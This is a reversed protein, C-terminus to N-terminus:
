KLFRQLALPVDKDNDDAASSDINSKEDDKKSQRYKAANKDLINARKRALKKGTKNRGRMKNKTKNKAKKNNDAEEALRRREIRAAEPDQDLSGIINPDLSIMEPNLKDLLSRVEAENRQKTDRFPNVEHSDFNAEGAGPIVISSIGNSHGIVGVDEYPRFRFRGISSGTVKHKMYPSKAKMALSDKWITTTYGHGVGLLGNQSIDLTTAPRDSFYDHLLKFTRIDWIKVRRDAGGTAMYNGSRDIALSQVPGRHCLMKVLSTSSAPSWLTVVGNSHGLHMIANSPNQRMVSCTGLKSRHESVFNGTSTDVYRLYGTRGVSALLWHYPLFQLRFPDSHDKLQHIETGADDYIFVSKKQAVAFMTENHLFCSDRVTEGLHIETKLALDYCDMLAVHGAQGFLLSHRGSRSYEAQYPGYQELKLDYIQRAMNEDLHDRKLEKQTVKFTREMEGDAELFGQSTNNQASDIIESAAVADVAADFRLEELRRLKHSVVTQNRKKGRRQIARQEHSTLPRSGLDEGDKISALSKSNGIDLYAQVREPNKLSSLVRDKKEKLETDTKAYDLRHAVHSSDVVGKSSGKRQTM